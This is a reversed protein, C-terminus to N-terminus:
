CFDNFKTSVLFANMLGLIEGDQDETIPDGLFISSKKTNRKSRSISYRTGIQLYM